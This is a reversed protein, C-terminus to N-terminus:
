SRKAYDHYKEYLTQAIYFDEETDIDVSEIPSTKYLYPDNPKYDWYSGTKFLKEIEFIIFANNGVYSPRRIKSNFVRDFNILKKNNDFILNHSEVVSFVSVVDNKQFTEIAEQVSSAKLLPCCANVLCANKYPLNLLYRHIEPADESCISKTTRQIFGIQHDDAIKKFEDEHAAIFALPNGAFKAAAIQILNLDGYFPRLIKNPCRQSQKRVAFIIPVDVM